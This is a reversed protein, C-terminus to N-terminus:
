MASYIRAGAVKVHTHFFDTLTLETDMQYMLFQQYMERVEQAVPCSESCLLEMNGGLLFCLKKNKQKAKCVISDLSFLNLIHSRLSYVSWAMSFIRDDKEDRKGHRFSYGQGRKAETYNFTSMESVLDKADEPFFLRNEKVVRSLEPFLMNQKTTHPSVTECPINNADCFPKIDLVEHDELTVMKLDYKEHAKKILKKIHSATNPIVNIQDLIFYEPEDNHASAVKAMVTFITNDAKGIASGFLSKSRDLGAGVVFHRGEVLKYVDQVPWKFPSKCGEIHEAKFLANSHSSRLGLIDRKFSAPLSTKMLRKAKKRDIWPPANLEYDEFDKYFQHDCFITDDEDALAQIQHCPGNTADVNSDIFIMSDRSDLTAALTAEFCETDPVSHFDSQWLISVRDGFSAHINLGPSHQIVSGLPRCFCEYVYQDRTPILKSLSPTNNIIKLVPNYMTRKCHNETSGLLQVTINQRTTAFYLCMLAFLTSKGHRRPQILLNMSYQYSSTRDPLTDPDHFHQKISPRAKRANLQRQTLQRVPEHETPPPNKAPKLIQQILELQKETPRFIEYRGNQLIRPKFDELWALFGNPSNERWLNIRNQKHKANQTQAHAM